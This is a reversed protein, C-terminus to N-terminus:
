LFQQVAPHDGATGAVVEIGAALGRRLGPRRATDKARALATSTM